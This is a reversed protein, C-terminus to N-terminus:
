NSIIELPRMSFLNPAFVSRNYVQCSFAPCRLRITLTHEITPIGKTNQLLPEMNLSLCPRFLAIEGIFIEANPNMHFGLMEEKMHPITTRVARPLPQTVVWFTSTVQM